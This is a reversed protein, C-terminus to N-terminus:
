VLLVMDEARIGLEKLEKVTTDGPHVYKAVVLKGRYDRLAEIPCVELRGLTEKGSEGYVASIRVGSEGSIIQFIRAEVDTGFVAVEKIGQAELKGLCQRSQYVVYGSYYITLHVIVKFANVADGTRWKERFESLLVGIVPPILRLYLLPNGFVNGINITSGEGPKYNKDLRESEWEDSDVESLALEALDEITLAAGPETRLKRVVPNERLPMIRGTRRVDLATSSINRGDSPGVYNKGGAQGPHWTHYLWEEEHWVERKGANVLRLTMDYPGCVHGLYDIHEDAGGIAILDERRACMCAGYNRTHLPDITDSLGWPKGELANTPEVREIEQISPYNFPYFKRNFSRLQDLHLVINADEDFTKAISEVFMPRVVADSDMLSVIRGRSLVIGVNYMLHKHYYVSKPMNIVAWIDVPPATGEAEAMNIGADIEAAHRGYYEILIIQYNERPVSQKNLYHLVHFSERVSWDLLVLSVAPQSTSKRNFLIEM